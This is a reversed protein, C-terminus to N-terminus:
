IHACIRPSIHGLTGWSSMGAEVQRPAFGIDVVPLMVPAYFAIM